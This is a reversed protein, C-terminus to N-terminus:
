VFRPAVPQRKQLEEIEPWLATFAAECAALEDLCELDRSTGVPLEKYALTLTVRLRLVKGQEHSLFEMTFAYAGDYKRLEIEEQAVVLEQDWLM